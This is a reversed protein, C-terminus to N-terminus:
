TAWAKGIEAYPVDGRYPGPTQSYKMLKTAGPESVCYGIITLEKIMRFFHPVAGTIGANRRTQEYQAQDYKKMLLIQDDSSLEDFSKGRFEMTDTAIQILGGRLVGRDIDSYYGTAMRDIYAPVGADLAGPTDTRPIIQDAMAAIIAMEGAKLFGGQPPQATATQEPTAVCGALVGAATSASIAGGLLISARHLLERRDMM